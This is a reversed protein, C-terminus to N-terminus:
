KPNSFQYATEAEKQSLFKMNETMKQAANPAKDYPHYAGNQDGAESVWHKIRENADNLENIKQDLDQYEQSSQVSEIIEARKAAYTQHQKALDTPDDFNMDFSTNPQSGQPPLGNAILEKNILQTRQADYNQAIKANRQQLDILSNSQEPTMKSVMKGRAEALDEAESDIFLPRNSNTDHHVTDIGIMGLGATARAKYGFNGADEKLIKYANGLAQEQRGMDKTVVKDMTALEEKIKERTAGLHTEAKKRADKLDELKKKEVSKLDEINKREESTMKSKGKGKGQKELESIRKEVEKQEKEITRLRDKADKVPKQMEKKLTAIDKQRAKYQEYADKLLKDKTSLPKGAQEKQKLYDRLANVRKQSSATESGLKVENRNLKRVIKLGDKTTNEAVYQNKTLPDTLKTAPKFRDKINNIKRMAFTNVDHLTKALKEVKPMAKTMLGSIVKAKSLTEVIKGSNVAFKGARLAARILFTGQGLGPVFMLVTLAAEVPNEKAWALLDKAGEKLGDYLIGYWPQDSELIGLYKGLAGLIGDTGNTDGQKEAGKTDLRYLMSCIAIDGQTELCEAIAPALRTCNERTNGAEVCKEIADAYRPDNPDIAEPQSEKEGETKEGAMTAAIHDDPRYEGLVPQNSLGTEEVRKQTEEPTEKGFIKKQEAELEKNTKKFFDDGDAGQHRGSFENKTYIEDNYNKVELDREEKTAAHAISTTTQNYTQINGFISSYFMVSLMMIRLIKRKEM